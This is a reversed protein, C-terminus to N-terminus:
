KKVRGQETEAGTADHKRDNSVAKGFRYSFSLVAQRTDLKNTWHADTLYLNNIIGNNANTYFIDNVGLKLTAQKGIAKQLGANVGGNSLIVFQATTVDTIYRGSLEATWGKGLRAQAMPQIFWYTGKNDLIGTYFNSRSHINCLETYASLTLWSLPELNADVSISKVVNRGINGPRSFYTNGIMEITEQVENRTRGYSMTVTIRNNYIYSLAISNTFSPKLFPNGVYYTFKDLPSIFPNMDQYYPRNIRRGYNLNVQHKAASDLKYNMYLTPFLSLYERRFTSDPKMANGLQHGDSLTHEMRLGAQVSFRNFEKNTNIYAANINEKYIFNNSKDYDPTTVNDKTYLYEALNDTKIYSSKLGASIVFGSKTPRTYDTKISYIYIDSPLNGNLQDRQSVAGDPMYTTNLFLQDNQTRYRIYDLDATWEHGANDFRHRYNANVGVNRFQDKETNLAKIVSDTQRGSNLLNSTNDNVQKGQNLQGNFQVGWTNHEDQYFDAGVRGTYGDGKRRIYTNQEFFSRTSEDTDKYRRYIDLDNFSNQRGYGLSAFVNVKNKRWNLNLSNNSRTYQGQNLGLSVNGNFGNAKNKKTRINIVGGSGAADYRAPPNPMLEIKELSSAPLSRLYDQLQTGSMYTPKDDIFVMVGPKGKLSIGGNQDVRVGPSKELADLASSGANGILADVNVVTRDVKQEVFPIRAVVSVEKLLGNGQKLQVAPLQVTAGSVRFTDSKYEEYGVASLWIRYLGDPVADLVYQGNEDSMTSKIVTSEDPSILAATVAMLGQATHDSVKGNVASSQQQAAGNLSATLACSVLVTQTFLKNM